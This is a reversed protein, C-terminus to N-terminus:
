VAAEHAGAAEAGATAFTLLLLLLQCAHVHQMPSFTSSPASVVCWAASGIPELLKLVQLLFTLLLLLLQCTHVPQM